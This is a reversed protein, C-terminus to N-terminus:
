NAQAHKGEVKKKQRASVAAVSILSSNAWALSLLKRKKIRSLSKAQQRIDRSRYNGSMTHIVVM